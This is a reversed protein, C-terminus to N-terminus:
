GRPRGASTVKRGQVHGAALRAGTRVPVSPHGRQPRQHGAAEALLHVRALQVHVAPLPRHAPLELQQVAVGDVAGRVALPSPGAGEDEADRVPTALVHQLYAGKLCCAIISQHLIRQMVNYNYVNHTHNEIPVVHPFSVWLSSVIRAGVVTVPCEPM